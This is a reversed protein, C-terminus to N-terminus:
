APAAPIEESKSGSCIGRKSREIFSVLETLQPTLGDQKIREIATSVSLGERYLHRYARKIDERVTPSFGARRLGVVNLGHVVALRGACLMYPPVDKSVASLGSVIALTGIRVFQHVVVLGSLFAGDHVECHGALTACNAFITKSGVRCNHAIHANAMLFNDDGVETFSGPKTGRHITVYERITNRSGIRTGSPEGSFAMDQPVHGVVAGMHIQNEDGLITGPGVYVNAWLTNRSGLVAGDEIICNPGITNGDGLLVRTGIHASPHVTNM